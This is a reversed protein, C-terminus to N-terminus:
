EHHCFDGLHEGKRGIVVFSIAHLVPDNGVKVMLSYTGPPLDRTDLDFIYGFRFHHFAHGHHVHSHSHIAYSTGNPGILSVATVTLHSSSLNHGEADTVRLMIPKAAGAPVPSSTNSLSKVDTTVQLTGTGSSATFNADGAYQYQITYSGPPLEVKNFTVSFSGDSAIVGSVSAIPREAGLLTVTVLQGVPLVSNSCVTGSVTVTKTGVAITPSSLGSLTTTAPNITLSTSSDSVATFNADGAYAYQITYSGAALSGTNLNVSFQGNSGITGSGSAVAGNAGLLTVTVSEGVPLVSNSGVTDSLTVTSTGYVTNSSSLGSLTTTAPTITLSKSSDSVATFNNDGAYAYRITYSGAGLAATNLSVSFEGDNGIMGSGSAVAGNTGLLTVTVDEGVPLVSNSGVTGTLTVTPSGYVITPASLNNLTTVAQNVTLSQTTDSIANYNSAGPYSYTITYPTASAGLTSTDFVASFTGDAPNIAASQTVGAVTINVSGPPFASNATIQGGLTVSSQGYTITAGALNSFTPTVLQAGGIYHDFTVFVNSQGTQITQVSSLSENTLFVDGNRGGVAIQGDTDLAINVLNESFGFPSKLLINTGTPNGNADYKTVTGGFAAAYVNGSSDVAISRIDSTPGTNLTFSRVLALTDPDFVQITPNSNTTGNGELEYLKGDLGLTVQLSSTGPAFQVASGDSTNFRVLGYSQGNSSGMDSAFVYNNYTAVEGYTLNNATSWGPTTRFSWNNTSASLTALSPTSTGDFINADGSPGVSVGRAHETETAGPAQPISVSNVLTGQQTYEMLNYAISFPVQASILLNGALLTRDELQELTLHPRLARRSPRRALLSM